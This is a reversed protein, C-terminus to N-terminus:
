FCVKTHVRTKKSTMDVRLQAEKKIYKGEMQWQLKADQLQDKLRAILDDKEKLEM